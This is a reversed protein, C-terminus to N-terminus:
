FSVSIGRDTEKIGKGEKIERAVRAEKIAKIEM